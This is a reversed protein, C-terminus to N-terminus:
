LSGAPLSGIGSGIYGKITMSASYGLSTSAANSSQFKIRVKNTDYGDIVQIWVDQSGNGTTNNNIIQAHVAFIESFLGAPLYIDQEPNWPDGSVYTNSPYAMTSTRCWFEVLNGLISYGYEANGNLAPSTFAGIRSKPHFGPLRGEIYDITAQKTVLAGDPDTSMNTERALLVPNNIGADITLVDGVAGPGTATNLTFNIPLATNSILVLAPTAPAAKVTVPTSAVSTFTKSGYITQPVAEDTGGLPGNSTVFHGTTGNFLNNAYAVVYSKNALEFLEAGSPTLGTSSNAYVIQHDTSGFSPRFHLPQESTIDIYNIGKLTLVNTQSDINSSVDFVLTGSVPYDTITGTLPVKNSDLSALRNIQQDTYYKSTLELDLVPTRQNTLIGKGSSLNLYGDASFVLNSPVASNSKAALVLTFGDSYDTIINSSIVKANTTKDNAAQDDTVTPRSAAGPDLSSDQISGFWAGGIGYFDGFTVGTTDVTPILTNPLNTTSNINVGVSTIKNALQVGMPVDLEGPATKPRNEFIVKTSLYQAVESINNSFYSSHVLNTNAFDVMSRVNVGSTAQREESGSMATVSPTKFHVENLYNELGGAGLFTNTSQDYSLQASSFYVPIPAESLPYNSASTNVYEAFNYPSNTENLNVAKFIINSEKSSRQVTVLGSTMDNRNKGLYYNNGLINIQNGGFVISTPGLIKGVYLAQYGKTAWALDFYVQDILEGGPGVRILRGESGPVFSAFKSSLKIGASFSICAYTKTAELYSLILVIPLTSYDVDSIAKSIDIPILLSNSYIAACTFPSFKGAPELSPDASLELYSGTSELISALQAINDQIDLLPRNDVDVDYPELEQYLSIPKLSITM